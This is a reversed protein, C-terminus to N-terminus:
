PEARTSQPLKEMATEENESIQFISSLHTIDLIERLKASPAFICVHGGTESLRRHAAILEGMGTSDMYRVRSGDVLVHRAGASLVTEIAAHFSEVSAGITISGEPAIVGVPATKRVEVKM